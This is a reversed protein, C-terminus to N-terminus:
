VKIRLQRFLEIADEFHGTDILGSIMASWTIRNKFFRLLNQAASLSTQLFNDYLGNKIAFVMCKKAKFFIVMKRLLQLLWSRWAEGQMQNFYKDVEM